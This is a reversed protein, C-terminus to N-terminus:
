QNVKSLFRRMFRRAHKEVLKQYHPTWELIIYNKHNKLRGLKASNSVGNFSGSVGIKFIKINTTRKVPTVSLSHLMAGTDRMNPLTSKGEALKKNITRQSYPAFPKAYANLHRETLRMVELIVDATLQKLMENLMDDYIKEMRILKELGELKATM